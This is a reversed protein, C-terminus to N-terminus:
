DGPRPPHDAALRRKGSQDELLGAAADGATAVLLDRLGPLAEAEAADVVADLAQIAEQQQDIRTRLTAQWMRRAQLTARWEPLDVLPTTSDPLAVFYDPGLTLGQVQEEARWAPYRGLKTVQAAITYM